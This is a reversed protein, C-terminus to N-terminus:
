HKKDRLESDLDLYKGTGNFFVHTKYNKVWDWVLRYEMAHYFWVAVTDEQLIKLMEEIDKERKAGPLETRILEYLKDFRANVYNSSNTGPALNGSYFLQLFNEPDPYDAAWGGLMLQFKARKAKELAEPFSNAVLSLKIGIKALNDRLLEGLQRNTTSPGRLDFTLEPLGKGEPFGAEALLAKAKELNFTHPFPPAKSGGEVVPPVPSDALMGRNNFLLDLARERQFATAIAQRLKKNKGLLPDKLNFEIWWATYSFTKSLRIGKSALDPQLQGDPGISDNFSEKPITSVDLQGRLFKLWRPQEEKVISWEIEDVFPLPLGASKLLGIKREEDSGITPYLVKRYNPNKVVKVKSGRAWESLKFPGTGVPHNIIEPGYKNVVEKAVVSMHPMSLVYLLQPYPKTLSIKLQFDKIVEFGRPTEEFIKNRTAEDAKEMRLRWEDLGVILGSLTWWNASGTRPDAVRKFSYVFDEATVQRGKGNPFAVHDHFFVDKRLDIIVTKNKDKFQPERAALLPELTHTGDLFSFTMLGEFIHQTLENSVQDNTQAPDASKVDDVLALRLVKYGKPSRSRTCSQFSLGVM